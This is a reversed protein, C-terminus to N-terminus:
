MSPRIVRILKGNLSEEAAIAEHIRSAMRCRDLDNTCVIIGSHNPTLRHLRIFDQRNLTLVARDSSMAFDLVEEDPIGFNGYGAEQITLVNHGLLRLQQSVKRPFQEDAYLYAM